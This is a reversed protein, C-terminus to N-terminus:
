EQQGHSRQHLGSLSTIQMAPGVLEPLVVKAVLSQRSAWDRAPQLDWFIALRPSFLPFSTSLCIAKKPKGPNEQTKHHVPELFAPFRM